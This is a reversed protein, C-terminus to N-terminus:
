PVDELHGSLNGQLAAFSFSVSGQPQDVEATVTVTFGADAYALMPHNAVFLPGDVSVQARLDLPHSFPNATAVRTFVHGRVANGPDLNDSELAVHEIVLRKGPPVTYVDESGTTDGGHIFTNVRIQVPINLSRNVDRVPVPSETPNIVNVDLPHPNGQGRTSNPTVLAGLGVLALLSIVAVLSKKFSFM